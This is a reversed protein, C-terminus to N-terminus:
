SSAPTSMPPPLSMSVDTVLHGESVGNGDTAVILTATFTSNTTRHGMKFRGRRCRVRVVLGRKTDQLYVSGRHSAAVRWVSRCVHLM